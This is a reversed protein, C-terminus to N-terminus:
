GKSRQKIKEPNQKAFVVGTIIVVQKYIKYIILYPFHNLLFRRFPPNYYSFYTPNEEIAELSNMLELYFREGLLESIKQYYLVAELIDRKAADTMELSFEM